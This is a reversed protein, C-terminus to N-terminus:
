KGDNIIDDPLAEGTLLFHIQEAINTVHDGTRELNKAIFLMNMGATVRAPEEVMYTLLERFISTYMADVGEDRQWVAIAKELDRQVYADLCDKLMAQVAESMRLISEFPLESAKLDEHIHSIRRCITKAYDGIRELNGSSKLACIASRLDGAMPQRLALFRVVEEDIQREIENVRKEAKRVETALEEDNSAVAEVAKKIQSEVLGGM